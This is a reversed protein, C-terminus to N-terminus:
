RVQFIVKSEPYEKKVRDAYDSVADRCLYYFSHLKREHQDFRDIYYITRTSGKYPQQEESIVIKM